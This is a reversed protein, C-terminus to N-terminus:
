QDISRGIRRNVLRGSWLDVPGLDGSRSIWRDVSKGIDRHVSRCVIWQDVSGSSYGGVM